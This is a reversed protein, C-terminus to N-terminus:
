EDKTSEERKGTKEKLKVGQLNSTTFHNFLIIVLQGCFMRVIQDRFLAEGTM